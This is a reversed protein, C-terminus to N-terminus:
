GVGLASFAAVRGLVLAAALGSSYGGSSIGGVDAGAAFLGPVPRGSDGLVRADRDIAIGGLTSTIGPAVLVAVDRARQEVPGGASRAAEILERVTRGSSTPAELAERGVLYWARAGPRRAVWQAVDSEHWAVGAAPYVTGDLAEIRAHRAYLQSLTVFSTEEVTAPPAPLNRGYFESLPGRTGAGADLALRLGDGSSWPNARLWLRDAEPTIHRRVLERDGQFGGTALVAPVGEPLSRLPENLRLEPLRAALAETLGDVDFRLGDTLPNATGRERVPAGLGELWALDGDLREVILAQLAFDGAPCEVRFTDLDRFRWVVGSSLRMSGGPRTGKEFVVVRAGLEAAQVGAVLGAM